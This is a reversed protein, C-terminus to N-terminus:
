DPTFNRRKQKHPKKSPEENLKRVVVSEDIGLIDKPYWVFIDAYERLLRIIQQNIDRSMAMSINLKKYPDGTVLEFKKVDETLRAKTKM